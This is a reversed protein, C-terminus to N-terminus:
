REDKLNCQVIYKVGIRQCAVSIVRVTITFEEMVDKRFMTKIDPMVLLPNEIKLIFRDIGLAM